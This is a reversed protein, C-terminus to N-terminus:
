LRLQNFYKAAQERAHQALTTAAMGERDAVITLKEGDKALVLIMYGAVGKHNLYFQRAEVCADTISIMDM